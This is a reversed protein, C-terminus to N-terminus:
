LPWRSQGFVFRNTGREVVDISIVDRGPQDSTARYAMVDFVRGQTLASYTMEDVVQRPLMQEVQARELQIPTRVPLSPLVLPAPAIETSVSPEVIMSERAELVKLRSDISDSVARNIAQQEMMSRHHKQVLQHLEVLESEKQAAEKERHELEAERQKLEAERKAFDAERQKLEAERKMMLEEALGPKTAAPKAATSRKPEPQRRSRTAPRGLEEVEDDYDDEDDDYEDSDYEEDIGAALAEEDDDSLDPEDDDDDEESAELQVFNKANILPAERPKKGSLGLSPATPAKTQTAQGTPKTTTTTSTPNAGNTPPHSLPKPIQELQKGPAAGNTPKNAPLQKGTVSPKTRVQTRQPEPSSPPLPDEFLHSFLSKAESTNM